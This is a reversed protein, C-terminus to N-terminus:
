GPRHVSRLQISAAAERPCQIALMANRASTKSRSDIGPLLRGAVSSMRDAAILAPCTSRSCEELEHRAAVLQGLQRQQQASEHSAICAAQEDQAHAVSAVTAMAM